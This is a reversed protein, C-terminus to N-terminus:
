MIGNKMLIIGIQDKQEVQIGVMQNLHVHGM